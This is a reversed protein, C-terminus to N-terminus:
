EFQGLNWKYGTTALKCQESGLPILGCGVSSEYDASPYVKSEGPDLMMGISNPDMLILDTHRMEPFSTKNFKALIHISSITQDIRGGFAGYAILKYPRHVEVEGDKGEM